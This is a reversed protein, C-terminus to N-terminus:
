ARRRIRKILALGGIGLLALSGPEPTITLNYPGEFFAPTDINIYYQGAAAGPITVVDPMNGPFTSYDGTSDLSGPSYVFLDNDAGGGTNTLTVTMDGGLWNLLWVDDGGEWIFFFHGGSDFGDNDDSAGNTNGNVSSLNAIPGLIPQGAFDALASTTAAFLLGTCVVLNWNKHM